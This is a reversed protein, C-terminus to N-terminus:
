LSPQGCLNELLDVPKRGAGVAKESEEGCVLWIISKFHSQFWLVGRRNGHSEVCHGAEENCKSYCNFAKLLNQGRKGDNRAFWKGEDGQILTEFLDSLNGDWSQQVLWKKNPWNNHLYLVHCWIETWKLKRKCNM